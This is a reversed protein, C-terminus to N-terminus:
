GKYPTSALIRVRAPPPPTSGDSGCWGQGGSPIRADGRQGVLWFVRTVLNPPVAFFTPSRLPPSSQQLPLPPLTSRKEGERKWVVARSPESASKEKKGKEELAYGPGLTLGHNYALLRSLPFLIFVRCLCISNILM